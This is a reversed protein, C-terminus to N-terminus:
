SHAPFLLGKAGAMTWWHAEDRALCRGRGINPAAGNFLSDNCHKWISWAGLIILSNLGKQADGSEAEM